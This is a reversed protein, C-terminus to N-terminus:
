LPGNAPKPSFCGGNEELFIHSYFLRAIFRMLSNWLPFLRSIRRLIFLFFYSKKKGSIHIIKCVIKATVKFISLFKFSNKTKRLALRWSDLVVMIKQHFNNTLGNKLIKQFLKFEFCNVRFHFLHWYQWNDGTIM